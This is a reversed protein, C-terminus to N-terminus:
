PTRNRGIYYSDTFHTSKPRQIQGLEPSVLALSVVFDWASLSWSWVVYVDDWSGVSVFVCGLSENLRNLRLWLARWMRVNFRVVVISVKAAHTAPILWRCSAGASRLDHAPDLAFFARAPEVIHADPQTAWLSNLSKYACVTSLSRFSVSNSHFIM